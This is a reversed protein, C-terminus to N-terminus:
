SGSKLTVSGPRASYAAVSAALSALVALLPVQVVPPLAAFVSPNDLLYGLLADGGVVLLPLAFSWLGAFLAKPSIGETVLVPAPEILEHDGM